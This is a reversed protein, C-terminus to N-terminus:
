QRRTARYIVLYLSAAMGVIVGVPLFVTGIGTVRDIGYGVLGWFGTGALLTGFANWMEGSILGPRYPRRPGGGAGPGNGTDGPTREANSM